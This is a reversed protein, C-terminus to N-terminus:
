RRRPLRVLVGALARGAALVGFFPLLLINLLGTVVLIIRRKRRAKPTACGFSERRGYRILALLNPAIMAPPLKWILAQDILASRARSRRAPSRSAATADSARLPVCFRDWGNRDPDTSQGWLQRAAPQESM